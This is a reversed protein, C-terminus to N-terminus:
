LSVGKKRLVQKVNGLNTMSEIEASTLKVAYAEEIAIILRVNSFSDWSTLTQPSSQDNLRGVEEELERAFLEEVTM